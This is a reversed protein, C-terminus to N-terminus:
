TSKFEYYYIKMEEIRLLMWMKIIFCPSANTEKKKKVFRLITFVLQYTICAAFCFFYQFQMHCIPPWGKLLFYHHGFLFHCDSLLFTSVMNLQLRLILFVFNMVQVKMCLIPVKRFIDRLSRRVEVNIGHGDQIMCKGLIGNVGVAM